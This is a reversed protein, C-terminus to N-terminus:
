FSCQFTINQVTCGFVMAFLLKYIALAISHSDIGARINCSTPSKVRQASATIRTQAEATILISCNVQSNKTQENSGLLERQGEHTM